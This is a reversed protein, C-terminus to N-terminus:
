GARSGRGALHKGFEHPEEVGHRHLNHQCIGGASGPQRGAALVSSLSSGTAAGDAQSDPSLAQAAVAAALTAAHWGLMRENYAYGILVSLVMVMVCIGGFAGSLYISLVSLPYTDPM